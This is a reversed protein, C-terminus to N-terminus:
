YREVTISSVGADVEIFVHEAASSYNESQFHGKAIRNFGPFSKSSLPADVRVDCGAESPVAIRLSSAGADITVNSEPVGRGLRLDVHTAGCDMNLSRVKFPSLDCHMKAAGVDLVLDWVPQKNLQVAVQNRMRGPPWGKRVGDLSLTFDTGASGGERGLSYRGFSTATRVEVFDATTDMLKFEGAGSELTFSANSSGPIFKEHFVQEQTIAGGEWAGDDWSFSLLAVLVLALVGAAVIVAVLRIVKGGFLIAAGWAILVVPWYQWAHHWQLSMVGFRELLFATGLTLFFVGWFVRGTKM